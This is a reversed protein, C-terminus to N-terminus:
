QLRQKPPVSQQLNYGVIPQSWQKTMGVLYPVVHYSNTIPPNFQTYEGGVPYQMATIPQPTPQGCVVTQQKGWTPTSQQVCSSM